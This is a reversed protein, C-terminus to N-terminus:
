SLVVQRMRNSLFMDVANGKYDAVDLLLSVLDDDVIPVILGRGHIYTDHCRQILTNMDDVARCLLLGVKGRNVSFRGALQDLEPNAVDETYNKCEVFIYSSPLNHITHLREFFGETAANDFTIDIRKRGQDIEREIQPHMLHPYFLLELIGVVLLHYDRAHNNGSPIAKLQEILHKAIDSLNFEGLEQNTISQIMSATKTKFDEFVEPHKETFDALWEKSVQLGKNEFDDKISKKTVFRRRGGRKTVAVQVLATNMQLHEHQLFNLVFHQFYQQAAYKKAFSVTAKPVFLVKRGDIVLMDTYENMWTNRQSDWFFGSPVSPQLPINWIRCQAQTYDILHKKIINTAIDSLRDKDVGEVFIRTDELDEVIGTQVARSQLLSNFIKDSYVEGVGRGRPRGRSLGLCTENPESLHSFHKKVSRLDGARVLNIFEEFFSSITRSAQLSWLDNRHALFYPDIFLPLDLALDIDVFDLEFQSKNLNFRESIKM